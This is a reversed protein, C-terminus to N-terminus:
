EGCAFTLQRSAQSCTSWHTEFTQINNSKISNYGPSYISVIMNSATNQGSTKVTGALYRNENPTPVRLRGTSCRGSVNGDDQFRQYHRSSVSQGIGFEESVEM